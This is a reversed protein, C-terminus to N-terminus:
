FPEPGFENEVSGLWKCRPCIPKKQVDGKRVEGCKICVLWPKEDIKKITQGKPHNRPYIPIFRFEVDIWGGEGDKRQAKVPEDLQIVAQKKDNWRIFTANYWEESWDGHDGQESDWVVRSFEVRDGPSFQTFYKKCAIHAITVKIGDGLISRLNDRYRKEDLCFDKDQCWKCPKLIM